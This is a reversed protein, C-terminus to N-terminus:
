QATSLMVSKSDLNGLSGEEGPSAKLQRAGHLCFAAPSLCLPLHSLHYLHFYHSFHSSFTPSTSTPIILSTPLSFPLPPPPHPSSTLPLHSLHSLYLPLHSLHSLYLPLHSLHLPLHSYHSLHLLLHSLHLPLHSCHYLHKYVRLTQM